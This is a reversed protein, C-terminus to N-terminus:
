PIAESYRRMLLKLWSLIVVMAMVLVVNFAVFYWWQNIRLSYFRDALSVIILLHVVYIIFASQGLVILWYLYRNQNAFMRYMISFTLLIVGIIWFVTRSSPLWHGNLIYDNYLNLNLIGGQMMNLAFYIMLSAIGLAHIQLLHRNMISETQGEVKLWKNGSHMGILVMSIWPWPPFGELFMHAMIPHKNSLTQIGPQAYVFLLYLLFAFVLVGDSFIRKQLKPLLPTVLMISIGITQLIGGSYLPEHPAIVINLVYGAVLLGLGRKLYRWYYAQKNGLLATQRRNFSLVLSFGVIFLFLPASVSITLYVLYHRGPDLAQTLLHTAAHNLIMLLLAFGRLADIFAIRHHSLESM